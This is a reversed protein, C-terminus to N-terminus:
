DKKVRQVFASLEDAEKADLILDAQHKFVKRGKVIVMRVSAMFFGELQVFKISEKSM